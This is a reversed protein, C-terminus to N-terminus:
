SCTRFAKRISIYPKVAKTIEVVERTESFRGPEYELGSSLGSAGDRMGEDVLAFMARMDADTAIQNDRDGMVRTRVTGHGVLLAVNNGIGQKEYLERQTRLPWRPSRGDQNVVSLTIGQAVMNRNARLAPNSIGRDSHSHIDIFGPTLMLGTADITRAAPQGKLSAISAIRDGRVGVDAIFWPNGTGDLVM